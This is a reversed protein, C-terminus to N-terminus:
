KDYVYLCTYYHLLVLERDLSSGQKMQLLAYNDLFKAPRGGHTHNCHAASQYCRLCLDFSNGAKFCKVCSLFTAPIFDGCSDCFPRGIKLIYYLTAVEWFDLTGNGDGDLKKFFDPTGTRKYGKRSMFSSFEPLEVKGDGDSDMSNFFEKAGAQAKPASNEGFHAKAMERLEEMEDSQFM